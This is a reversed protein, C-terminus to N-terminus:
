QYARSYQTHDQMFANTITLLLGPLAQKLFKVFNLVTLIAINGALFAIILAFEIAM